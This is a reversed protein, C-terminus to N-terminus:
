NPERAKSLIERQLAAEYKAPDDGQEAVITSWKAINDQLSKTLREALAVTVGPKAGEKQVVRDIETKRFAEVFAVYEPSPPLWKVGREAGGKGRRRTTPMNPM